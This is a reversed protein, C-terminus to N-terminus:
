VGVIKKWGEKFNKFSCNEIYWKRANRSLSERNKWAYEIKEQVYDIDHHKRWDMKVFCDEPVNKYFLGVNSAVIVMGCILADLTAFSNGESNSIQLFIDSSLYIDQKRKNFDKVNNGAPMVNLQKFNFNKVRRKLEPIVAQGKKVHNWNGLVVPSNNFSKKFRNEDLESSNLHDIIKFKTYKEGFYKTFDERCSISTSIMVTNKPDRYTLMREQGLTCLSRWPEGWDPNRDGTTKACGHHLIFIDYLNPIDCALQNDVLIVPNECNNLYKIMTNKERPGEFFKRNKFVLSLTYDYRSVGGFNGREYSGCCYSIIDTYKEKEKYKKRLDNYIQLCNKRMENEDVNKLLILLKEIENERIRIIAKEWLEHPPLELKDSLLIPIAGCALSEWFRISNPGSGSPCLSFRSQLLLENYENTKRTHKESNNYEGHINQKDSYVIPNFHWEGINEIFTDSSHKMSFIKLRIGSMYAQQYAGKFSYLYKREINLFDKDRFLTNKNEDEINVAYLPCPFIKIGDIVDEGKCKHPTYLRSINIQKFFPILLRFSIHQCCTYKKRGSFFDSINLNIKKDIITAWPFGLYNINNKNQNYFEKETIVPYQWFIDYKKILKESDITDNKNNIIRRVRRM